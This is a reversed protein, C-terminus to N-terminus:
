MTQKFSTVKSISRYVSILTSSLSSCRPVTLLWFDNGGEPACPWPLCSTDSGLSSSDSDHLLPRGTHDTMLSRYSSDPFHCSLLSPILFFYGSKKRREDRASAVWHSFGAPLRSAIGICDMPLVSVLDPLSYGALGEYKM